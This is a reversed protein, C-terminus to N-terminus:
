GEKIVSTNGFKDHWGRKLPDSNITVAIAIVAVFEALSTVLGLLYVGSFISLAAWANRRLSEEYTPNAGTAGLVRLKMIQKGYTRGQTSDMYAFYALYLLGGIIGGILANTIVIIVVQVIGVIIGDIFRALFRDLLSGPRAGAM